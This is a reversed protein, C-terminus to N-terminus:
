NIKVVVRPNELRGGSHFHFYRWKSVPNGDVDKAPHFGKKWAKLAKIFKEAVRKEADLPNVWTVETVEGFENIHLGIVVLQKISPWETSTFKTRQSIFFSFDRKTENPNPDFDNELMEKPKEYGPRYITYKHEGRYRVQAIQVGDKFYSTIFKSNVLNVTTKYQLQSNEDFQELMFEQYEDIRPSTRIIRNIQNKLNYIREIKTSDGTYSVLKNFFHNISDRDSIEHYHQNLRIPKLSQGIGNQPLAGFLVVFILGLILRIM